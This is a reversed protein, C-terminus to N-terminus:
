RDARPDLADRIADGLVNLALVILVLSLAPILFYAPDKSWYNVGDALVLGWTTAPAQVGVGLFSYVAESQIYIPLTLSLFVIAPSWLNPLLEKLVIRNSSAGISRAAMVFDRERLSLVQSRVLRAFGPWGFLTFFLILVLVRANNDQALGLAEIRQTLPFSLAVIMFVTPFALLFDSVRGVTADLWGRFYGVTTGVLLGLGITSVSALTALIFSIRSGYLLMAFVDRGAGPEIGFPHQWSIGTGGIPMGAKDLLETYNYTPDLGWLGCIVPAFASSFLFMLVFLASIVGSRNQKFRMWALQRPSRSQSPAAVGYGNGAADLDNVM